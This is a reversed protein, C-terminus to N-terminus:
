NGGGKKGRKEPAPAATQKQSGRDGVQTQPAPPASQTEVKAARGDECLADALAEPLDVVKGVPPSDYGGLDGAFSQALRVEM